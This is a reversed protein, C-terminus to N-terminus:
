PNAGPILTPSDTRCLLTAAGAVAATEIRMVHPGFRVVTRGTARAQDIEERTWGGEPGLLLVTDTTAPPCPRGTADAICVRDDLIAHEFDAWEGVELLWARGCQKASEIAVRGLKDSRFADREARATRLPRWAAVGLQSLQDIMTELRDGKPPPCWVEVRPSVPPVRTPPGADLDLAARKGTRVAAVSAPATTGQGDFLEVPEGIRLRKANAAHHAEPGDISVPGPGALAALDSFYIRHAPPGDEPM